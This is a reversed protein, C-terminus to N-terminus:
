DHFEQTEASNLCPDVMPSDSFRGFPVFLGKTGDNKNSVESRCVPLSTALKGLRERPIFSRSFQTTELHTTKLGDGKKKFEQIVAAWTNGKESFCSEIEKGFM